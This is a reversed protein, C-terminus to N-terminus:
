TMNGISREYGVYHLIFDRNGDYLLVPLGASILGPIVTITSPVSSDDLYNYVPDSCEQWGSSQLSSSLPTVHIATQVTDTNLYTALQSDRADTESCPDDINYIDTCSVSSHAAKWDNAFNYLDCQYSIKTYNSNTAYLCQKAIAGAQALASTDTGFFGSDHLFDFDNTASIFSEQNRKDILGNGIAVGSLKIATGDSLKAKSVLTSAIYPIYYGAYSEGTIYLKYAKAETFVSFWGDLFTYFTKALTTESTEYASSYSFGTGVPQEVYLVNALTHWSHPNANLTGDDAILFPGNEEFMGILSSCGPGGNLWIVLDTSSTNTSPFYWFFVKGSAGNSTVPIYGAYQGNLASTPANPLSTVTYSAKSAAAVTPTATVDIQAAAIRALAAADVLGDAALADSDVPAASGSLPRRLRLRADEHAAAVGSPAVLLAALLFALMAVLASAVAQPRRM